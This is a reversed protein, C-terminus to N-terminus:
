LKCLKKPSPLHTITVRLARTNGYMMEVGVNMQKPHSYATSGMISMSHVMTKVWGVILPMEKGELEKPICIYAIRPHGDPRGHLVCGRLIDEQLRPIGGYVPGYNM